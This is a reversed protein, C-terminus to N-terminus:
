REGAPLREARGRGLTMIATGMATSGFTIVFGFLLLAIAAGGHIDTVILDRLQHPNLALLGGVLLVAVAIGSGLNIALLRWLPQQLATVIANARSGL